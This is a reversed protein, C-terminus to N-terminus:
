AVIAIERKLLWIWIRYCLINEQATLETYKFLLFIVRCIDNSTPIPKPKERERYKKKKQMQVIIICKYM